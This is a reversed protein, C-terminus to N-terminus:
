QLKSVKSKPAFVASSIYLPPSLRQSVANNYLVVKILAIIHEWNGKILFQETGTDQRGGTLLSFDQSHPSCTNILNRASLSSYSLPPAVVPRTLASVGSGVVRMVRVQHQGAPRM